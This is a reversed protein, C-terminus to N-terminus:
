VVEYDLDGLLIISHVDGTPKEINKDSSQNGLKNKSQKQLDLKAVLAHIHYDDEFSIDKNNIEYSRHNCCIITLVILPIFTSLSAGCIQLM